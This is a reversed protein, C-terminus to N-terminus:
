RKRLVKRTSAASSKWMVNREDTAPCAECARTSLSLGDVSGKGEEDEEEEEIEECNEAGTTRTACQTLLV